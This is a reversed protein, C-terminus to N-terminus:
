LFKWKAMLEQAKILEGGQFNQPIQEKLNLVFDNFDTNPALRLLTQFALLLAKDTGVALKLHWFFSSVIASDHYLGGNKQSLVVPTEVTRKFSARKYASEGLLPNDLHFTTFVDAYGENISGGEGQFPLRSVLDIVAHSVEHMVISPDWPIKSFIVDDGSGLRIQGQYYFATNTKEPHGVHALIGVKMSNKLNLKKVLWSIIQNSFYFAQVQDFREDNPLIELDSTPYIKAPSETKVEVQNNTLGEPINFRNLLVKSLVSRKPGKPFALAFAEPLDTLGSGLKQELILKGDEAFEMEYIEGLKNSLSIVLVPKLNGKTKIVVKTSQEVKWNQYAPNKNMFRLWSQAKKSDLLKARELIKDPLTEMLAYSQFIVSNEKSITKLYSNEIQFGDVIQNSFNIKESGSEWKADQVLGVTPPSPREGEGSWRNEHLVTRKTCGICFILLIFVLNLFSM